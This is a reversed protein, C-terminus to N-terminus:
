VTPPKAPPETPAPQFSKVVLFILLGVIVVVSAGLAAITGYLILDGYEM